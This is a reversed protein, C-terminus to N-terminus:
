RGYRGVLTATGLVKGKLAALFATREAGAGLRLPARLAYLRFVYHHTDSPPCPAVWGVRGASTTGERPAAGVLSRAADPIAWALRHTFAGYYADPDEVLLAFSRTGRPPSSWRLPVITDAGDCTYARPITGGGRFAPSTLVFRSRPQSDGVVPTALSIALLLAGALSLPKM